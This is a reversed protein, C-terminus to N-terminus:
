LTIEDESTEYYVEDDSVNTNLIPYEKNIYDNCKQSFKLFKKINESKNSYLYNKCHYCLHVNFEWYKVRRGKKQNLTKFLIYKSTLTDCNFCKQIWGDNPLHSERYIYIEKIIKRRVDVM